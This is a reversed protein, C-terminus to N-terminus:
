RSDCPQATDTAARLNGAREEHSPWRSLRWAQWRLTIGLAARELWPLRRHALTRGQCVVEVRDGRVRLERDGPELVRYPRRPDLVEEVDRIEVLMERRMRQAIARLRPSRDFADARAQRIILRVGGARHALDLVAGVRDPRDADDFAGALWACRYARCIKPRSAYVACGSDATQHM